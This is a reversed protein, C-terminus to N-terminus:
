DSAARLKVDLSYIMQDVSALRVDGYEREVQKSRDDIASDVACKMENVTSERLAVLKEKEGSLKAILTESTNFDRKISPIPSMEGAAIRALRDSESDTDLRDAYDRAKTYEEWTSYTLEFSHYNVDNNYDRFSYMAGPTMEHVLYGGAMTSNFYMCTEIATVRDTLVGEISGSSRSNIVFIKSM